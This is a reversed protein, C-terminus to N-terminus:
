VLAVNRGRAGYRVHPALPNHGITEAWCIDFDPVVIILEQLHQIACNQDLDLNPLVATYVTRGDLRSDHSRPLLASGWGWLSAGKVSGRPQM